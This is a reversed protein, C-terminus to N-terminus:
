AHVPSPHAPWHRNIAEIDHGAEEVSYPMPLGMEHLRQMFGPKSLGLAEGAQGLSLRGQYFLGVVLCSILEPTTCEAQAALKDPVQLTM